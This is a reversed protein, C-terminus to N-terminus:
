PKAENAEAEMELYRKRVYYIMAGILCLPLFSMFATTAIFAFRNAESAQFCVPCAWGITPTLVVTLALLRAIM